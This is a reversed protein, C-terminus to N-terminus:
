ASATGVELNRRHPWTRGEDESIALTMPARPAGWFASRETLPAVDEGGIDDYLSLRRGTANDKSLENFVMAIHGNALRM